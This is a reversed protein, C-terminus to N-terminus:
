TLVSFLPTVPAETSSYWHWKFVYDLFNRGDDARQGYYDSKPCKPLEDDLLFSLRACFKIETRFEKTDLISLPQNFDTCVKGISAFARSSPNDGGGRM